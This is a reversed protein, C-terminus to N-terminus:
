PNFPCPIPRHSLRNSCQASLAPTLPELGSLGVSSSAPQRLVSLNGRRCAFLPRTLHNVTPLPRAAQRILWATKHRHIPRQNSLRIVVPHAAPPQTQRPDPAAVLPERGPPRSNPSAPDNPPRPQLAQTPVKVVSRFLLLVCCAPRTVHGRGASLTEIILHQRRVHILSSLAHPPHRPTLPRHLVRIAAILEPSTDDVTSGSTESHPLGASCYETVAPQVCLGTLPCSPFQFM